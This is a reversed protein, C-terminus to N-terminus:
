SFEFSGRSQNKVKYMATDSKKMLTDIDGGDEPFCSIGISAGIVCENDKFVFPRQLNKLIKQAIPVVDQKDDIGQIIIVFEDGGVRAATDSKRVSKVLRKAVERLVSDGIEHGFNDNIPKFHDLDIYLLCVKKHNRKALGLAQKARDHFLNRNVLGTLPDFHALQMIKEEAEVRAAERQALAKYGLYITMAGICWIALHAVIMSRNHFGAAEHFSDMSLTTSLGGRQDGEKYGQEAHCKLCATETKLSRIMRLFEHGDKEIFEFYEDSEQGLASLAKIEWSDAQNQPNIPNLSVLHGSIKNQMNALEYLQRTMYAPNIMTLTLDPSITLDRLPVIKSSLYINPQNKETVPAYIGGHLANWQRFIIDRDLTVSGMKVIISHIEKKHQAINWVLSISIIFSWSALIVAALIKLPFSQKSQPTSIIKKHGNDQTIDREEM